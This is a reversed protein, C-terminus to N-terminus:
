PKSSARLADALWPWAPKMADVVRGDLLHGIDGASALKVPVGAKEFLSIVPRTARECARTSCVFLVRRPGDAAYRRVAEQTWADQGGEGLIARPYREPHAVLIPVGLIAGRSFGAYIMPGALLYPGFRAEMASLGADIEAELEHTSSFTLGAGPAADRPQGHPCLIFPEADTVGRWEGCAWEPRDRMGHVGIMVPRPHTAGLPVSVFSDGFGDLPLRELWAGALPPLPDADPLAGSSPPMVSGPPSPEAASPAVDDDHRIGRCDVAPVCCLLAAGWLLPGTGTGFREARSFNGAM